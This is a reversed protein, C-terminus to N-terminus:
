CEPRAYDPSAWSAQPQERVARPQQRKEIEALERKRREFPDEGPYMRDHEACLRRIHEVIESM